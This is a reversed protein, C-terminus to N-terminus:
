SLWPLRVKAHQLRSLRFLADDLASNRLLHIFEASIPSNVMYYKFIHQVRHWYTILILM